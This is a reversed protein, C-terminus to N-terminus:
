QPQVPSHQPSRGAGSKKGESKKLGQGWVLLQLQVVPAAVLRCTGAEAGAVALLPRPDATIPVLWKARTPEWGRHAPM